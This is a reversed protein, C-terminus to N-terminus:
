AKLQQIIHKEHWISLFHALVLVIVTYHHPFSVLNSTGYKITELQDQFLVCLKRAKQFGELTSLFDGIKKKSYFCTENELL